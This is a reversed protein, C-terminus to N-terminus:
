LKVYAGNPLSDAAARAGDSNGDDFPHLTLFWLHGLAAKRLL